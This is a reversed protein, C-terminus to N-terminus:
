KGKYAPNPEKGSSLKVPYPTNERYKKARQKGEKFIEEFLEYEWGQGYNVYLKWGYLWKNIKKKTTM